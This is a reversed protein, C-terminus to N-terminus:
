KLNLKQGASGMRLMSQTCEVRVPSARRVVENPLGKNVLVFLEHTGCSSPRYIVTAERGQNAELYAIREIDFLGGGNQPDGDYFQATFGQASSSPVSLPASVTIPQNLTVRTASLGIKGINVPVPSSNVPVPSSSPSARLFGSPSPSSPALIPFAVKYFGLNNSYDETQVDSLSNLTGPIAKLGHGPMEQILTNGPGQMWVVVWFGVTQGGYPATNFPVQALTWNLDSGDTGENFAPIGNTLQDEGIYISNGAPKNAGDLPQAYFRVHVTTNDPMPTLSYNYVRAQLTLQDGATALSLQPGQGPHAANSIFFGRMFHFESTWPTQPAFTGPGFCDIQSAGSGWALCNPAAAGDGTPTVLQWHAPRNLAVDPLNYAQSWWGGAGNLGSRAPDATFATRILGYAKVDTGLPSSDVAGTPPTSGFIIPTLPYRYNPPDRFSGLSSVGIGTSSSYSTVSKNLTSFGQSGSVDIGAEFGLGVEGFSIAGNVSLDNEYSNNQDFSATQSSTSGSTWTV